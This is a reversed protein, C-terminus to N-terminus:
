PPKRFQKLPTLTFIQIADMVANREHRCAESGPSAYPHASTPYSSNADVVNVVTHILSLLLQTVFPVVARKLIHVPPIVFLKM